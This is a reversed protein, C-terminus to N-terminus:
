KAISAFDQGMAVDQFRDSPRGSRFLTFVKAGVHVAESALDFSVGAVGYKDSVHGPHSVAEPHIALIM